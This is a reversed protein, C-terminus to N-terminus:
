RSIAALRGPRRHFYIGQTHYSATKDLAELSSEPTQM